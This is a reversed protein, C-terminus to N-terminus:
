DADHFILHEDKSFDILRWEEDAYSAPIFVEFVYGNSFTIRIDGLSSQECHLVYHGLLNKTLQKSMVDFLSSEDDPRDTLSYDWESEDIAASYPKYMDRSGLLIRGNHIFRWQVQLHLSYAPYVRDSLIHNGLSVTKQLDNGFNLCLMDLIRHMSHFPKNILRNM